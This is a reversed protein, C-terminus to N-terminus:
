KPWQVDFIGPEGGDGDFVVRIKHDAPVTLNLGVFDARIPFEPEGRDVLVALRILRPRGYDTLADLAARISRGTSLVDDVMIILKDNVDFPISTERILPLRSRNGIDDRYMSIDLTGFDPTCNYEAKLVDRIQAALPVGQQHIGVLACDGNSSAILKFIEGALKRIASHMVAATCLLNPTNDM